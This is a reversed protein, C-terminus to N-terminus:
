KSIDSEVMALGMMGERGDSSCHNEMDLAEVRRLASLKNVLLGSASAAGKTILYSRM